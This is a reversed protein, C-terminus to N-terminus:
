SLDRIGAKIQMSVQKKGDELWQRGVEKFGHGTHFEQSPKNPPASNIECAIYTINKNAAYNFIDRYLLSGIGRGKYGEAVVIRDIYLFSKYRNSFWRFNENIYPASSRMALLFATINGDCIAIKHYDSIEDLFRIREIDMVSTNEVENANLKVISQFDNEKVARLIVGSM